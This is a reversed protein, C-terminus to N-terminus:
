RRAAGPKARSSRAPAAGRKRAQAANGDRDTPSRADTEYDRNAETPNVEDVGVKPNALKRSHPALKKAAMGGPKQVCRVLM